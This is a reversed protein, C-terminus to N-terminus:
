PVSNKELLGVTHAEQRGTDRLLHPIGGSPQLLLLWGATQERRIRHREGQAGHRRERQHHARRGPEPARPERRGPHLHLPCDLQAPDCEGRYRYRLPHPPQRLIRPSGGGLYIRQRIAQLRCVARREHAHAAAFGPRPLGRGSLNVHSFGTFFRNRYEYPTSWWRADKDYVNLDSGM